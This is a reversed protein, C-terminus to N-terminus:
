FHSRLWWDCGHPPVRVGRMWGYVKGEGGGGGLAVWVRGFLYVEIHKEEGIRLPSILEELKQGPEEVEEEVEERNSDDDDHHGNHPPHSRYGVRPSECGGGGREEEEEEEGNRRSRTPETSGLLLLVVLLLLINSFKPAVM